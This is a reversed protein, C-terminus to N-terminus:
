FGKPLEHAWKARMREDLAKSARAIAPFTKQRNFPICADIVVRSNHRDKETDHCMPDLASSWGGHIIDVQIRPDCRTCMAWIVDNINTPDIDDDVM